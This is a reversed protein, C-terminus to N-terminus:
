FFKRIKSARKPGLRRPKNSAADTLGEVDQDGKKVLVLNIVSLESSVICGRVSRRKREGDRRVRYCSVGDRLLVKVRGATLVGQKMPFGQKDNGGSIRFKYGKFADGLSDGDVEHSIRKDFFPRLKSEDEIDFCKQSGFNPHSINVKM